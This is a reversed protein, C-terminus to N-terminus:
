SFPFQCPLQISVMYHETLNCKISEVLAALNFLFFISTIIMMIIITIKLGTGLCMRNRYSKVSILLLDKCTLPQM